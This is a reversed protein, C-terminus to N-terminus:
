NGNEKKTANKAHERAEQYRQKILNVEAKPTAIGSKSKKQFAHLVYLHEGIQVAYILRYADKNYRDAIEFIGGGIGKFPKAHQAKEGCQAAFLAAGMDSRVPKPFERLNRKSNGLWVIPRVNLAM